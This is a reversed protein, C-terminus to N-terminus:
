GYFVGFFRFVYEKGPRLQEFEPPPADLFNGEVDSFLVL